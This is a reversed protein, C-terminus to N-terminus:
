VLEYIIHGSTKGGGVKSSLLAEGANNANGFVTIEEGMRAQWRHIGGWTNLSPQLLYLTPSRQAKTTAITNGWSMVTGPATAQVDLLTNNGITLAGTSVVSTRALIMQTPTSASDEGAIDVESIRALTTASGGRLSGPYQTDVTASAADPLAVCTVGSWSSSYRAM